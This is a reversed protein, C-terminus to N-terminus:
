YSKSRLIETTTTIIEDAEGEGMFDVEVEEVEEVEKAEMDQCELITVDEMPHLLNIMTMLVDNSGDIAEVEVEVMDVKVVKMMLIEGVNATEVVEAAAM